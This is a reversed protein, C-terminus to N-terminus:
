DLQSAAAADLIAITEVGRVMSAPTEPSPEEAFARRVAEAKAEGTVLYILLGAEAFVPPTMTVRQVLPELGPEAAVARREREELAPANPFLSATHGDAGIGNVALDLTVGALEEDYLQAAADAGLEGRIRQVEPPVRLRDLLSERVLRYNSHEDDPPVAREDGFWGHAGGWDPLQAAAAAYAEGVTRGGSLALHGGASAFRVLWGGALRAPEEVVHVAVGNLSRIAM